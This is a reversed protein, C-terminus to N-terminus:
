LEAGAPVALVDIPARLRARKYRQHLVPALNFVVNLLTMAIAWGYAGTGFAFTQTVVGFLFWASHWRENAISGAVHEARSARDRVIRYGADRRRLRSLVWDGDTALFRFLRLGLAPYLRGREFARPRFWGGPLLFPVLFLVLGSVFALGCGGPVALTHPRFPELFRMWYAATVPLWQGPLVLILTNLRRRLREVDPPTSATM